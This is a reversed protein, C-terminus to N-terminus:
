LNSRRILMLTLHLDKDMLTVRRNHLTAENSKEFLDILFIEAAHRLADIAGCQIRLQAQSQGSISAKEARLDEVIKCVQRRFPGPAIESNDRLSVRVLKALHMQKKKTEKELIVAMRRIGGKGSGMRHTQVPDSQARLLARHYIEVPRRKPVHKLRRRDQSSASTYPTPQPQSEELRTSTSPRPQNEELRSSQNAAEDDQFRVLRKKPEQKQLNQSILLARASPTPQNEQELTAQYASDRIRTAIAEGRDRQKSSNQLTRLSAPTTSKRAKQPSIPTAQQM